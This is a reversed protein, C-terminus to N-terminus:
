ALRKGRILDRLFLNNDGGMQELWDEYDIDNLDSGESLDIYDPYKVFDYVREDCLFCVATLSDNLDPEHFYGHKIKNDRLELLILNLSGINYPNTNTTGGNLVIWTRHNEVYDMYEPDNKYNQAYQEVAHGCQIGVHIEKLQYMVFFYMRKELNNM